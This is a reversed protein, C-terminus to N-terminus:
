AEGVAACGVSLASHMRAEALSWVDHVEHMGLLGHM